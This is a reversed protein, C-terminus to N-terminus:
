IYRTYLICRTGKGATHFLAFSAGNSLAEPLDYDMETKAKLIAKHYAYLTGLGNGAGGVWDEHVVVVKGNTPIIQGRTQEM